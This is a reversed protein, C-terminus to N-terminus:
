RTMPRIGPAGHHAKQAAMPAIMLAPLAILACIGGIAQLTGHIRRARAREEAKHVTRTLSLVNETYVVWALKKEPTDNGWDFIADVVRRSEEHSLNGGAAIRKVMETLEPLQMFKATRAAELKAWRAARAREEEARAFEDQKFKAFIDAAMCHIVSWEPYNKFAKEVVYKHIINNLKGRHSSKFSDSLLGGEFPTIQKAVEVDTMYTIM